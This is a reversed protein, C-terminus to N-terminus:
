SVAEDGFTRNLEKIQQAAKFSQLEDVFDVRLARKLFQNLKVVEQRASTGPQVDVLKQLAAEIQTPSKIKVGDRLMDVSDALENFTKTLMNVRGVNIGKLGLNQEVSVPINRLGRMYMTLDPSLKGISEFETGSLQIDFAGLKESFKGFNLNSKVGFTTVRKGGARSTARNALEIVAKRAVNTDKSQASKVLADDGESSFFRAVIQGFTKAQASGTKLGAFEPNISYVGEGEKILFTIQELRDALATNLQTLPEGIDVNKGTKALLSRAEDLEKGCVKFSSNLGQNVKNGLKMITNPNNYLNVSAGKQSITEFVDDSIEPIFRTFLDKVAEKSGPRHALKFIQKAINGDEGFFLKSAFKDAFDKDAFVRSLVRRDGRKVADLAFQTKANDLHTAIAGFGKVFGEAGRKQILKNATNLLGLKISNIARGIFVGGVEQAAGYAGERAVDGLREMADGQEFGFVQRGIEQRVFEGGAGGAAGGGAVAALAGPGTPLAAAGTVLGGGIAGLIPLSGGIADAIDGPLDLLNELNFGTPELPTGPALGREARQEERRAVLAEDQMFGGKAREGIPLYQDPTAKTPEQGQNLYQVVEDPTPQTDAEVVYKKGDDLEIQFKPM